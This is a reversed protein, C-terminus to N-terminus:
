DEITLGEVTLEEGAIEYAKTKAAPDAIRIQGTKLLQDLVPRLRESNFTSRKGGIAPGYKINSAVLRKITMPESAARIKSLVLDLHTCPSPCTLAWCSKVELLCKMLVIASEMAENSIESSLTTAGSFFEFLCHHIAALRGVMGKSKSRAGKMDPNKEIANMDQVDNHYQEFLSTAADSLSFVSPSNTEIWSWVQSIQPPEVSDNSLIDAFRPYRIEPMYFWLRDVFGSPDPESMLESIFAPQIFGALTIRTQKLVTTKNALKRNIGAGNYWNLWNTRDVSEGVKSYKDLQGLFM